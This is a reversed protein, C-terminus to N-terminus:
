APEDDLLLLRQQTSGVSRADAALQLLGRQTKKAADITEFLGTIPHNQPVFTNTWVGHRETKVSHFLSMHAPLTVPPYTTQAQCTHAGEEFYKQFDPNGCAAVSDARMGDVLILLVKNDMQKDEHHPIHFASHSILKKGIGAIGGKKQDKMMEKNDSLEAENTLIENRIRLAGAVNRTTMNILDEQLLCAQDAEENVTWLSLGIGLDRCAAIRAPTMLKYSLNVCEVGLQKVLAAVMEKNEDFLTGQEEKTEPIPANKMFYKFIQAFNLFIRARQVISPDKELLKVDVSGSFILKERRFGAAEAAELVPYLLKEEKLDCNVAADSEAIAHLATELPLAESYNELENHTLRLGGQPDMRIDIEICDAGLEIGKRISEMSNDPTGECGSHATIMTNRMFSRKPDIPGTKGTWEPCCSLGPRNM